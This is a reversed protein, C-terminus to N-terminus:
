LARCINTLSVSCAFSKSVELPSDKISFSAKEQKKILGSLEKVARSIQKQEQEVVVIRRSIKGLQESISRCIILLSGSASGGSSTGSEESDTAEDRLSQDRPPSLRTRGSVPLMSARFGGRLRRSCSVGLSSRSARSDRDSM